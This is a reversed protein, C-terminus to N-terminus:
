ESTRDSPRSSEELSKDLRDLEDQLRGLKAQETRLQEEADTLKTQTEQEENSNAELRAKINAVTQDIEKQTAPDDIQGRTQSDEFQKLDQGLKSKEQEIQTLKSRSDDVRDQLRRVANEQAQLRYMLIQSRQAAATTVQLQRRLQRVEGLIQQLTQTDSSKTQAAVCRPLLLVPFIVYFLPSRLRM